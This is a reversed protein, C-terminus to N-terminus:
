QNKGGGGGGGGGCEGFKGIVKNKKQGRGGEEEEEELWFINIQGMRRRWLRSFTPLPLRLCCFFLRHCFFRCTHLFFGQSHFWVFKHVEVFSSSSLSFDIVTAHVCRHKIEFNKWDRGSWVSWRTTTVQKICFKLKKRKFWNQFFFLEMGSKCLKDAFCHPFGVLCMQRCIEFTIVQRIGWFQSM